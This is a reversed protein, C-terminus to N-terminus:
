PTGESRPFSREADPFTSFYGAVDHLIRAAQDRTTGPAVVVRVQAGGLDVHAQTPESMHTMSSDGSCDIQIARSM